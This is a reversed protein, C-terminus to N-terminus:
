CKATPRIKNLVIERNGVVLFSLTCRLGCQDPQYELQYHRSPVRSGRVHCEPRFMEWKVM